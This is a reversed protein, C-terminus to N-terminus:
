CITFARGLDRLFERNKSIVAHEHKWGICFPSTRRIAKPTFPAQTLRAAGRSSRTTPFRKRLSLRTTTSKSSSCIRRCPGSPTQRFLRSARESVSLKWPTQPDRPDHNLTYTKQTTTGIAASWEKRDEGSRVFWQQKMSSQEEIEKAIEPGYIRLPQQKSQFIMWLRVGKGPLLSLLKDLDPLKGLHGMEELLLLTPVPRPHEMIAEILLTIILGMWVGHSPLYKDPLIIYLTTKGDLVSKPDFDHEM